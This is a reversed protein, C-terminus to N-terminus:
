GVSMRIESGTVVLESKRQNIKPVDVIIGDDVQFKTGCYECNRYRNLPAGCNRCNTQPNFVPANIRAITSQNISNMISYYSVPQINIDDAAITISGNSM